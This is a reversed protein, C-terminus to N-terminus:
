RAVLLSAEQNLSHGSQVPEGWAYSEATGATAKKLINIAANHDRDIVLGCYPCRHTRTALTKPVRKECGSCNISTYHPDVKEFRCGAEEAKHALISLFGGWGADAISKSLHRNRVMKRITLDEAVILGFTNVLKRGEKHHFDLRQNRVKRHVTSVLLRAKKRNSSGKKKRSLERQVRQLKRESQRLHKPNAIETGDALTAFSKLGVDIGTTQVPVPIIQAEYETSFCAYWHNGDKRVTCTKVQGIIERHMRIKLHGIKSLKLKGEEIRFGPEQPYTISDYRGESKFRPYGAKEQKAAVRRFFGQYARDVRFLVDQLVQSHIGALLLVRKKDAVLTKQQQIRGLGKGTSEYHNKRDVLCSNYLIRCTELTALLKAEQTKSPYLRYKYAKRM